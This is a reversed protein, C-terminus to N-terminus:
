QKVRISGDPAVFKTGPPLAQLAEPSSIRPPPKPPAPRGMGAPLEGTVGLSLDPAVRSPDFGYSSALGEYVKKTGQLTELQRKYLRSARDTFDGRQNVNLREGSLVKNYMNRIQDPVGAANQANAFEQERVVSGPDLIKMYSFILALDGAASPDKASATVRGFADRVKTFEDAQKLFEGRVKAENDIQKDSLGGPGATVQAKRFDAARNLAQERGTTQQYLRIAAAEEEAATRPYPTVNGKPDQLYDFEGDKDVDIPTTKPGMQATKMQIFANQAEPNDLTALASMPDAQNLADILAKRDSKALNDEAEKASRTTYGEIGKTLAYIGATLPSNVNQLSVGSNQMMDAYQRQRMADARPDPGVPVAQQPAQAAQTQTFQPQQPQGQGQPLMAMMSPDVPPAMGQRGFWSPLQRGFM